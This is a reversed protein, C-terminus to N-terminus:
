ISSGGEARHRGAHLEARVREVWRALVEPRPVAGLVLELIAGKETAARVEARVIESTGALGSAMAAAWTEERKATGRETSSLRHRVWRGLRGFTSDDIALERGDAGRTELLVVFRRDDEFRVSLSQGSAELTLRAGDDLPEATLTADRYSQGAITRAVQVCCAHARASGRARAVSAPPALRVELPSSETGDARSRIISLRGEDDDAEASVLELRPASFRAHPPGPVKAVLAAGGGPELFPLVYAVRTARDRAILRFEDDVWVVAAGDIDRVVHEGAYRDISAVPRETMRGRADLYACLVRDGSQAVLALALRSGAAAMALAVVPHELRHSVVSAREGDRRALLLEREGPFIAALIPEGRVDEIAIRPSGGQRVIWPAPDLEIRGERHLTGVRVGGEVSVALWAHGADARAVSLARAGRAVEIRETYALGREGRSSRQLLLTSPTSGVGDHPEELVAAAAGAADIWLVGLRDGLEVLRPAERSAGPDGLVMGHADAASRGREVRALSPGWPAAWGVVLDRGWRGASVEVPARAREEGESADPVTVDRRDRAAQM